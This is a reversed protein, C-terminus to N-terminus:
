SRLNPSRLPPDALLMPPVEHITRIEILEKMRRLFEDQVPWGPVAIVVTIPDTFFLM